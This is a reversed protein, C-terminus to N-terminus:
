RIEFSLKQVTHQCMAKTELCDAFFKLMEPNRMVTGISIKASKYIDMNCESDVMKYLAYCFFYVFLQRSEVSISSM